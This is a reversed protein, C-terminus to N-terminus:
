RHVLGVFTFSAIHRICCIHCIHSHSSWCALSGLSLADDCLLIRVLRAVNERTINVKLQGDEPFLSARTQM